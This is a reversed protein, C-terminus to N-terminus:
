KTGRECQSLALHPAMLHEGFLGRMGPGEGTRFAVTPLVALVADLVRALRPWRRRWSPAPPANIGGGGFQEALKATWWAARAFSVKM